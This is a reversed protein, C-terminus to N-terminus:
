TIPVLLTRPNSRRWWRWRSSRQVDFALGDGLFLQAREVNGKALWQALPLLWDTLVRPWARESLPGLPEAAGAFQDLVLLGRAGEATAIWATFNPFGRHVRAAMAVGLGRALPDESCVDDWCKDVTAPMQGAGWFWVSNPTRADDAGNNEDRVAQHMVMQMETMLRQWRKRNVGKPLFDHLSKGIVEEAPYSRLQPDEDAGLYWRRGGSTEFRFGEEEVLARVKEILQPADNLSHWATMLLSDRDATMRVLDARVWWLSDRRDLDGLRSLAAVPADAAPDGVVGAHGLLWNTLTGTSFKEGRALLTLLPALKAVDVSDLSAILHSLGPIAIHLRKMTRDIM